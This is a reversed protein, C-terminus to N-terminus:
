YTGIVVTKLELWVGKPPVFILVLYKNALPLPQFVLLYWYTGNDAGAVSWGRLGAAVAPQGWIWGRVLWPIWCGRRAPGLDLWPGAVPDLLWQPSVGFGAVSWGRFLGFFLQLLM